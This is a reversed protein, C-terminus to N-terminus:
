KASKTKAMEELEKRKEAVLKKLEDQNKPFHITKKTGGDDEATCDPHGVYKSMISVYKATLEEVVKSSNEQTIMESQTIRETIYNDSDQIFAAECASVTSQSQPICGIDSISGTGSTSGTSTPTETGSLDIESLKKGVKLLERSAKLVAILKDVDEQKTPFELDEQEKKGSPLTKEIKCSPRGLYKKFFDATLAISKDFAALQQEIALKEFEAGSPAEIALYEDTVTKPCPAGKTWKDEAKGCASLGISLSLVLASSIWKKSHKM